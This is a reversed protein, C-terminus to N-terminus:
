EKRWLGEEKRLRIFFGGSEVNIFRVDCGLPQAQTYEMSEGPVSHHLFIHNTVYWYSVVFPFNGSEYLEWLLIRVLKNSGGPNRKKLRQLFDNYSITHFLEVTLNPSV